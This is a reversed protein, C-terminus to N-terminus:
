VYQQGEGLAYTMRVKVAVLLQAHAAPSWSPGPTTDCTHSPTERMVASALCAKRSLETASPWGSGPVVKAQVSEAHTDHTKLHRHHGKLMRPEVALM